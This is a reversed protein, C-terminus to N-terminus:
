SVAAVGRVFTGEAIECAPITSQSNIIDEFRHSAVQEALSKLELIFSERGEGTIDIYTQVAQLLQSDSIKSLAM